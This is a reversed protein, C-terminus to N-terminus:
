DESATSAASFDTPFSAADPRKLQMWRMSGFPSVIFPLAIPM